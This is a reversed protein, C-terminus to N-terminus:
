NIHFFVAKQMPNTELFSQLSKSLNEVPKVGSM